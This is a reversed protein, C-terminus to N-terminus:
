PNYADETPPQGVPIDTLPGTLREEGPGALRFLEFDEFRAIVEFYDEFTEDKPITIGPLYLITSVTNQSFYLFETDYQKLWNYLDEGTESNAMLEGYSAYTHLDGILPCDFLYRRNEAGLGYIISDERLVKSGRGIAQNVEDIIPWGPLKNNYFEWRAQETFHLGQGTHGYKTGVNVWFIFSFTILLLTWALHSRKMFNFSSLNYLETIGWGTIVAQVPFIYVMYRIYKIKEHLFWYAYVMVLFIILLLGIRRWKKVFLVAPALALFFPGMTNPSTVLRPHDNRFTNDWFLSIVKNFDLEYSFLRLMAVHDIGLETKLDNLTGFTLSGFITEYFPFFPNAFLVINRLYWPSAVIVVWLLVIGLGAFVIMPKRKAPVVTEVDAGTDNNINKNNGKDHANTKKALVSNSNKVAKSKGKRKSKRAPIKENNIEPEPNKHDFIMRNAKLIKLEWAPIRLFWAIVIIVLMMVTVAVGLYKVGCSLGSAIGMLWLWKSDKTEYWSLLAYLAMIAYFVLVLEVYVGQSSRYIMPSILYLLAAILGVQRNFYRTGIMYTFCSVGINFTFVLSAGPDKFLMMELTTLMELLQPFNNFKIWAFFVVAHERLYFKPAALHSNLADWGTSPNNARFFVAVTLATILFFLAWDLLSWGKPQLGTRVVKYLHVLHRYGVILVALAAFGFIFPYLLKALGVVFTFISVLGLGIGISFLSEEMNNRFEFDKLVLKLFWRGVIYGIVMLVVTIVYPAIMFRSFGIAYEMVIEYWQMLVTEGHVEKTFEIGENRYKFMYYSIAWLSFIGWLILLERRRSKLIDSLIGM